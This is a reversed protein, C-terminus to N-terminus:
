FSCIFGDLINRYKSFINEVIWKATLNGRDLKYKKDTQRYASLLSRARTIQENRHNLHYTKIEEKHNQYYKKCWKRVQEKHTEKYRKRYERRKRNKEDETLKQRSMTHKNLDILKQM